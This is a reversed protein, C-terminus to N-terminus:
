ARGGGGRAMSVSVDSIESGPSKISVSLSSGSATISITASFGVASATAQIRNGSIKGSVQGVVGRVNENWSGSINSGESTLDSSLEFKYSDSACRLSLSLSNGGSKNNSRCRIRERSGNQITITGSGAWNGGFSTLEAAKPRDAAFAVLGATITLAALWRSNM